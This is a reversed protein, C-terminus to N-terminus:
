GGGTTVSTRCPAACGVLRLLVLEPRCWFRLRPADAREMGIGRSVVLVKGPAVVHAGSSWRRPVRALTLLPGFFPLQVQGGHTHGALLLDADVRALCFDPSHGLVIHFKGGAGPVILEPDVSDARALTTLVVPDLDFRATREVAVVPVGQFIGPWRRPPDVNGAVAFAGLPAALGARRLMDRLQAAASDYAGGGVQLYDGAFLVLDPRAAAVQSLASAEYAGPRESQVDAILAVTLPRAIKDSSITLRTVELRFPEVYVADIGIAAIAAAASLLVLAVWRRQSLVVATGALLFPTHALLAWAWVRTVGFHSVPVLPAALLAALWYGLLALAAVAFPPRGRRGVAFLLVCAWAFLLLSAVTVVRSDSM